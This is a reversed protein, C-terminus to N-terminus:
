PKSEGKQKKKKKLRVSNVVIQYYADSQEPFVDDLDSM